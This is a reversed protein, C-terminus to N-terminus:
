SLKGNAHTQTNEVSKMGLLLLMRTRKVNLHVPLLAFGQSPLSIFVNVQQRQQQQQQKNAQTNLFTFNFNLYGVIALLCVALLKLWLSSTSPIKLRRKSAAFFHFRLINIMFALGYNRLSYENSHTQSRRTLQKAFSMRSIAHNRQM